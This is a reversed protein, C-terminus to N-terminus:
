QEIGARECLRTIIKSYRHLQGVMGSHHDGIEGQMSESMVKLATLAVMIAENEEARLKDRERCDLIHKIWLGALGAM